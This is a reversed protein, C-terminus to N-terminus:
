SDDLVKDLDHDHVSSFSGVSRLRGPGAGGLVAGNRVMSIRGCPCRRYRVLGESSRHVSLPTTDDLPGGCQRCRLPVPRNALEAPARIGETDVRLPGRHHEGERLWTDVRDAVSEWGRDLMMDHGIGPFIEAHTGYGRATDRIETVSFIPDLEAGLVLVPTRVRNPRPRLWVTDLFAFYSEDQLHARCREVLERPTGPTFFLERVLAETAVLPRLSWRLSAKAMVLPHRVTLRGVARLTGRLPVSAMLVAGPSDATELYKQVVLGGMSHGVLLPPEAFGAAAARVDQVYDRLRYRLRGHRQDHGRLEVARVEHGREGLYEALERWCWPGHWAGHVLLVAAM